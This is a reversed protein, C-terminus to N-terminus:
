RRRICRRTSGTLLLVCPLLARGGHRRHIELGHQAVLDGTMLLATRRLPTLTRARLWRFVVAESILKVAAVVMWGGCLWRRVGHMVDSIAGNASWAAALHVLLAVPTGLVLCTLIFKLGTYAPNWFARRTSAYIMTSCAVGALGCAAVAGGVARHWEPSNFFGWASLATIAADISALAAFVGFALVERSLWSTRWGIVARYALWPRGLHLVSAGLGIMGLAFDWVRTCCARRQFRARRATRRRSRAGRWASQRIWLLAGVSMQTLVLM